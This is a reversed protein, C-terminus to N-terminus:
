PAPTNRVQKNVQIEQITKEIHAQARQLDNLTDAELDTLGVSQRPLKARQKIEFDRIRTRNSRYDQELREVRLEDIEDHINNLQRTFNLTHQALDIKSVVSFSAALLGYRAELAMIATGFTTVLGLTLSVAWITSHSAAFRKLWPRKLLPQLTSPSMRPRRRAM